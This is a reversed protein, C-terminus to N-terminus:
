ASDGPQRLGFRVGQPDKCEIWRGFDGSDNVEGILTGGLETLRAMGAELDPVSFFVEFHAEPDDGHMGINVTPTNVWGGSGMDSSEWGLLSAFFARAAGVDPVGLELHSPEGPM